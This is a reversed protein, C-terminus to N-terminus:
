IWQQYYIIRNVQSNSLDFLWMLTKVKLKFEERLKRILKADNWNVRSRPNNEHRLKKNRVESIKSSFFHQSNEKTTMWELNNVFNNQKNFDKHNVEPLNNPNEIFAQAVLRNIRMGKQQHEKTLNVSLYGESNFIPSLLQGKRVYSSNRNGKIIRDLSRVRGKDSVQYYGEFNEIDKWIEKM